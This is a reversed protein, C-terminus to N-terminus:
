IKELKALKLLQRWGPGKTLTPVLLEHFKSIFIEDHYTCNLSHCVEHIATTLVNMVKTENDSIDVKLSRPNLLYRSIGDKKQHVSVVSSDFTFGITFKQNIDNAKFVEKLCVKWLGALVTYKKKGYNPMFESPVKTYSSDALDFHFDATFQKEALREIHHIAIVTEDSASTGVKSKIESVLAVPTMEPMTTQIQKIADIIEATMRVMNTIHSIFNSAGAIVFKRPKAKIFSEKEICLETILKDLENRANGKLGDRNQTFVDVSNGVIEVIVDRRLDSVYRDFMLLGNHRVIVTNNDTHRRSAYVDGLGTITKAYSANFYNKCAVYM